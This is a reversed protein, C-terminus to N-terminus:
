LGFVIAHAQFAGVGVANFVLAWPLCAPASRTSSWGPFCLCSVWAVLSFGEMGIVVSSDCGSDNRISEQCRKGTRTFHSERPLTPWEPGSLLPKETFPVMQKPGEGSKEDSRGCAPPYGLIEFCKRARTSHISSKEIPVMSGREINRSQVHKPISYKYRLFIVKRLLTPWKPGPSKVDQPGHKSYNQQQSTPGPKAANGRRSQNRQDRVSARYRKVDVSKATQRIFLALTKPTTPVQSSWEEENIATLMGAMPEITDVSIQYQSMCAVDDAAHEAYLGAFLVQRANYAFMAMCFLLLACRPYCNSKHECNLTMTLTQFANEIEWRRLYADAIMCGDADSPALNCLLHLVTEKERTPEYLEVTVRRVFLEEGQFCLKMTQEFIVGTNTEGIRQRNGMLEGQLRSNQRILFCANSKFVSFLFHIICYHRDAILLDKERIDQVVRELVTVEQAHGDELLYAKDFLATQHNFRAVVTGPLPAACLFRTEALRKETKQLHNGDLSYANYGPIM